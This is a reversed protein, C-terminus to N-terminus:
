RRRLAFPDVVRSARYDRGVDINFWVLDADRRDKSSLKCERFRDGRLVNMTHAFKDNGTRLIIRACHHDLIFISM